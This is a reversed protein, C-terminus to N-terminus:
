FSTCKKMLKLLFMTICVVKKEKNLFLNLLLVEILWLNKPYIYMNTNKVFFHPQSRTTTTM